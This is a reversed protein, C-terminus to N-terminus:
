SEPYFVLTTPNAASATQAAEETPAIMIPVALSNTLSYVGNTETFQTPDLEIANVTPSAAAERIWNFIGDGNRDAYIWRFSVNNRYEDHIVTVFDNPQPDIVDNIVSALQQTTTINLQLGTGHGGVLTKVGTQDSNFVGADSVTLETVAGAGDIETVVFLADLEDLAGSSSYYQVSDGVNYSIGGAIITPVGVVRYKTEATHVNYVSGRNSGSLTVAGGLEDLGDNTENVKYRKGPRKFLFSSAPIGHRM